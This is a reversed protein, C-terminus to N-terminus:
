FYVFFSFLGSFFLCRRNLGVQILILNYSNVTRKNLKLIQSILLLRCNIRGPFFRQFNQHWHLIRGAYVEVPRLRLVRGARPVRRGNEHGDEAFRWVARSGRQCLEPMVFSKLIRDWNLKWYKVLLLNCTIYICLCVDSILKFIEFILKRLWPLDLLYIYIDFSYTIQHIAFSVGMVELFKDDESAITKANKLDTELNRISSDMQKLTKQIIDMSVRSARDVHIM